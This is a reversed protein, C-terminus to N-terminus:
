IYVSPEDRLMDWSTFWGFTAGGEASPAAEASSQPNTASTLLGAVHLQYSLLLM